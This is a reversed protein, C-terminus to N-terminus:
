QVVGRDLSARKILGHGAEEDELKQGALNQLRRQKAREALVCGSSQGAWFGADTGSM